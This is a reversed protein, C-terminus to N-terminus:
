DKVAGAGHHRKRSVVANDSHFRELACAVIVAGSVAVLLHAAFFAGLFTYLISATAAPLVCCSVAIVGGSAAQRLALFALIAAVFILTGSDSLWLAKPSNGFFVPLNSHRVAIAVQRFAIAHVTAGAVLIASALGLLFRSWSNNM